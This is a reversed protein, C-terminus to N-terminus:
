TYKISKMFLQPKKKKSKLPLCSRWNHLVFQYKEIMYKSYAGRHSDITKVVLDNIKKTILNM